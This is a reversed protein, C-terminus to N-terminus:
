LCEGHQTGWGKRARPPFPPLGCFDMEVTFLWASVAGIM